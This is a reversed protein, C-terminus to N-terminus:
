STTAPAASWCTMATAAACGTTATAASCCTTAAAAPSGTAAAGGVIIEFDDIRDEGIEEGTAIGAEMDALVAQVLASLDLTDIGDGGSYSDNGDHDADGSGDFAVVVITDNGGGGSVVDDGNGGILTNCGDDGTIVDNGSGAIVNEINALTDSGIEAGTAIGAELDIIVTERASGADLTDNGTGGDYHDDGDDGQSSPAQVAVIITDDGAGASVM